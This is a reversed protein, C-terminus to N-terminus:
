SKRGRRARVVFAAAAAAFAVAIAVYAGNHNEAKAAAVRVPEMVADALVATLVFFLGTM